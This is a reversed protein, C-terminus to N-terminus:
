INREDVGINAALTSSFLDKVCMTYLDPLRSRPPKEIDPVRNRFKTVTVARCGVRDNTISPVQAENWRNGGDTSVQM